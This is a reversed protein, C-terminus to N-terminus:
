LAELLADLSDYADDSDLHWRWGRGPKRTKPDVLRVVIPRFGAPLPQATMERLSARVSKSKGGVECVFHRVGLALLDGDFALGDKREGRRQGSRSIIATRFGHRHFEREVARVRQAGKAVDSM